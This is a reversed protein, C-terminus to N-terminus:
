AAGNESSFKHSLFEHDRNQDDSRCHGLNERAHASL